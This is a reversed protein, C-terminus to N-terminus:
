ASRNNRATGSIEGLADVKELNELFHRIRTPTMPQVVLLHFDVEEQFDSWTIAAPRSALVYEYPPYDQMLNVIQAQISVDLASVPEDAIILEPKLVLARAIGVRQLQGGSFAHPYRDAADPPMGVVDLFEQIEPRADEIRDILGHVLLPEAVIELVSHRPNLTGYPDQHVAQIHRRLRRLPEGSM